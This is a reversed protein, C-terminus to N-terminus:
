KHAKKWVLLARIGQLDSLVELLLQQEKSTGSDHELLYTYVIVFRWSFDL